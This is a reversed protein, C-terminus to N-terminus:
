MALNFFDAFEVPIQASTRPAIPERVISQATRKMDILMNSSGCAQLAADLEPETEEIHMISAAALATYVANLTDYEDTALLNDVAAHLKSSFDGANVPSYGPVVTRITEIIEATSKM